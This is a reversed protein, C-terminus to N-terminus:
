EPPDVGDPRPALIAWLCACFMLALGAFFPIDNADRLLKEIAAAGTSIGLLSVLLTKSPLEQATANSRRSAFFLLGIFAVLLGIDVALSLGGSVGALRMAIRLVIAAVYAAVALTLQRKNLM